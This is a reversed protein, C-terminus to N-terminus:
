AQLQKLINRVISEVQGRDPAPMARGCAQAAEPFGCEALVCAIRARIDAMKELEGPSLPFRARGPHFGRLEYGARFGEPFNPANVMLSFLDLLKFQVRKAETWDGALASAYLRMIVEPVVGASSLTGGDGGMFLSACLLEEWGILCAFDPRQPKIEHLLQQFRPMDRSTDKTGIIRPCDLALRKLVPVSIENAFAPINYIVIDIPSKAALERFYTEISEQTLKYYYPGTISVARCGLDACHRCMDLVLDVNPEAAGALIPRGGAEEAVISVVRKREEYSLRIFEGMSGNPYFGTVGKGGLWRIIRRLEDENITGDPGYPVINPVFIGTLTDSNRM